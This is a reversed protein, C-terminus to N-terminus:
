HITNVAEQEVDKQVTNWNIEGIQTMDSNLILGLAIVPVKFFNIQLLKNILTACEEYTFGTMGTEIMCSAEIKQTEHNSKIYSYVVTYLNLRKVLSFEVYDFQSSIIPASKFLDLSEKQM